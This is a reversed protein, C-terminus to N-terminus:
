VLRANYVSEPKLDSKPCTRSKQWFYYMDEYSIEHSTIISNRYRCSDFEVFSNRFGELLVPHLGLKKVCIAVYVDELYFFPVNPSQRLVGDVTDRSMVYGTGSCMSPFTSHRYQAFSVYWKSQKNRHPSGPGWCMGGIFKESPAAKLLLPLLETNVYMDDDTKMVYKANKCFEQSWKFSSLTKYTLNAYSDHFDMQIIDHYLESEKLLNTNEISDNRNGFVFVYKIKSTRKNCQECWTNRIATRSNNRSPTSTILILLETDGQCIDPENIIRRFNNAFCGECDDPRSPTNLDTNEKISNDKERSMWVFPKLLKGLLEFNKLSKHTHQGTKNREEMNSVDSNNGTIVNAKPRRKTSKSISSTVNNQHHSNFESRLQNLTDIIEQTDEKSFKISDLGTLNHRQTTTLTTFKKLPTKLGYTQESNALKVENAKDVLENTNNVVKMKRVAETVNGRAILIASKQPANTITRNNDWKQSPTNSQFGNEKEGNTDIGPNSKPNKKEQITENRKDDMKGVIGKTETRNGKDKEQIKEITQKVETQSTFKEMTEKSKNTLLVSRDRVKVDPLHIRSIEFRSIDSSIKYIHGGINWNYSILVLIFSVVAVTLFYLKSRKLISTM